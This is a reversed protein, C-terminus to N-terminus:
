KLHRLPQWSQNRIDKFLQPALSVAGAGSAEGVGSVMRMSAKRRSLGINATL